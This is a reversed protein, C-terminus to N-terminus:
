YFVIFDLIFVVIIAIITLIGFVAAAVDLKRSAVKSMPMLLLAALHCFVTMFLTFLPVYEWISSVVRTCIAVIILVVTLIMAGWAASKSARLSM